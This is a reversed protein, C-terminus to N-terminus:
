VFFNNRYNSTIKSAVDRLDADLKVQPAFINYPDFIAKIKAYLEALDPSIQKPAVLSKLRGDGGSACIVGGLETVLSSYSNLLKLAKQKNTIHRLDLSSQLNLVETLVSGYIPLPMELAIEMKAVTDAFSQWKIRPLSAGQAIPMSKTDTQDFDLMAPLDRIIEVNPDNGVIGRCRNALNALKKDLNKTTFKNKAEFVVLLHFGVQNNMKRQATVVDPYTKGYNSALDFIGQGFIDLVAPKLKLLQDIADMADALSPFSLLRALRHSVLDDLRVIAETIIGLTGQSGIILPSLDFGASTKVKAINAYGANDALDSNISAIIEQNEEILADIKRYVEGEATSLGIKHSLERKNLRKTQLTTGNALVVELQDVMQYITSNHDALPYILNHSIIGGISHQASTLSLPLSLSHEKAILNITSLSTGAQVHILAQDPDFDLVNNLHRSTNIVLENSLCGGTSDNRYGCTSIPLFKNKSALQFSLSTVKRVDESTRPFIVVSPKVRLIGRDQSFVDLVTEQAIAEGALNANLYSAIKNMNEIKVYVHNFYFQCFQFIILLFIFFVM